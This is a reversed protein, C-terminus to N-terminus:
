RTLDAPCSASLGACSQEQTSFDPGPKGFRSARRLSVPTRIPSRSFTLARAAGPWRSKRGRWVAGFM